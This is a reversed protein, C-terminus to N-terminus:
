KVIKIKEKILMRSFLSLFIICFLIVDRFFLIVLFSLVPVFELLEGVNLAETLGVM